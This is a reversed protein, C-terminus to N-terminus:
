ICKWCPIWAEGPEVQTVIATMTGVLDEIGSSKRREYIKIRFEEFFESNKKDGRPTYELVDISM